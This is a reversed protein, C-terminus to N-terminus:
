ELISSLGTAWELDITAVLADYIAKEVQVKAELSNDLAKQLTMLDVKGYNYGERTLRLAEENLSSSLRAAELQALSSLVTREYKDIDLRATKIADSTELEYIKKSNIQGRVNVGSTSWPFYCDLPITASVSLSNTVRDTEPDWTRDAGYQYQATIVPSYSLARTDALAARGIEENMRATLVTPANNVATVKDTLLTAIEERRDESGKLMEDLTGVVVPNLNSIASEGWGEVGISKFFNAESTELTARAALLEPKRKEVDVRATAVELSNVQGKNFRAQATSLTKQASTLTEEALAVAEKQYLIALFAKKITRVVDRKTNELTMLGKEYDLTARKIATGVGASLKLSVGGKINLSEKEGEFDNNYGGSLNISPSLSNWSSNKKLRLTKLDIEAKKIEINNRLASDVAREITWAQSSEIDQKDLLSEEELGKEEADLPIAFVKTDLVFGTVFLTFTLSFLLRCRISM